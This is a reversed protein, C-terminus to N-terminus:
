ESCGSVRREINFGWTELGKEFSLSKIPIRIEAYWGTDDRSTKAEWIADWSSNVEDAHRPVLGDFRAGSPNVSFVYGSRSDMFTDFVIVLRDEEDLNSDRAKSFSVIRNPERDQCWVAVIIEDPNAFVKVITPATPVQGEDPEVTTLDPISDTADRWAPDGRQGDLNFGSTLPNVRLVPRESM